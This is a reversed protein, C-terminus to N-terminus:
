QGGCRTSRRLQKRPTQFNHQAENGLFFSNKESPKSILASASFSLAQPTTPAPPAPKGAETL